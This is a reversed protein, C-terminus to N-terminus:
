CPKGGAPMLKNHVDERLKKRTKADVPGMKEVIANVNREVIDPAITYPVDDLGREPERAKVTVAGDCGLGRRECVRRVDDKSSVWAEPDKWRLGRRALQPSYRKGEPNIGAEKAQQYAIRRTRDDSGFGDGSRIFTTDTQISPVSFRYEMPAGCTGCRQAHKTREKEDWTQFRDEHQGCGTCVYEYSPM